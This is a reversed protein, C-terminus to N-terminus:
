DVGEALLLMVPVVLFMFWPLCSLALVVSGGRGRLVPILRGVLVHFVLYTAALITCLAFGFAVLLFGIPPRRGPGLYVGLAGMTLVFAVSCCVNALMLWLGKRFRRRNRQRPVDALKREFAEVTLLPEIFREADLPKGLARLRDRAETLFASERELFRARDAPDTWASAIEDIAVAAARFAPAANRWDEKETFYRALARYVRLDRSPSPQQRRAAHYQALNETASKSDSAAIAASLRALVSEIQLPSHHRVLPNGKLKDLQALAGTIDGRLIQLKARAVAVHLLGLEDDKARYVEEAQDLASWADDTKGAAAVVAAHVLSERATYARSEITPLAQAEAFAVTARESDGLDAWAAASAAVNGRLTRKDGISEWFGRLAKVFEILATAPMTVPRRRLALLMLRGDSRLITNGVRREFPIVNTIAFLGNVLAVIEWLPKGWPVSKSLIFAVVALLGNALLGAAFFPIIKRRPPSLDPIFCFTLGQLPRSRCLFFRIDRVSRTFFPRGTGLGFSNVLLGVARAVLVHGLEHVFVSLYTIPLALAVVFLPNPGHHPM